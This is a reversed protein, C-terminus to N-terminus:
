AIRDGADCARATDQEGAQCQGQGQADRHANGTTRYAEAGTVYARAEVASQEPSSWFWAASITPWIRRGRTNSAARIPAISPM